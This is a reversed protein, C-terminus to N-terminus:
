KSAAKNKENTMPLPAKNKKENTMNSPGPNTSDVAQVDQISDGGTISFSFGLTLSKVVSGSFSIAGRRTRPFNIGGVVM